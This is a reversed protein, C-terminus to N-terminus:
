ETSQRGGGAQANRSGTVGARQGAVELQRISLPRGRTEPWKGSSTVRRHSKWRYTAM